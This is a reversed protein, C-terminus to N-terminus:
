FTVEYGSKLDKGNEIFVTHKSDSLRIRLRARDDREFARVMLAVSVPKYHCSQGTVQMFYTAGTAAALKVQADKRSLTIYERSAL